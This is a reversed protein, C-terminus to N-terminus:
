IFLIRRYYVVLVIFYIFYTFFHAIVVGKLGYNSILFFSSSWLILFSFIDTFVFGKVDKNAFFQIGMIYAAAKFFDGLLQWFFLQSVPKFENTFLVTVIFDKFLFLMLLGVFFVPLINKFYEFFLNKTDLKSKVSSLKPLFYLAVLTSIFMFYYSAIRTMAEWYGAEKLGINNIINQRISLNILPSIALPVFLMLSYSSIKKLFNFDYNEFSFLKKIKISKNLYYTSTIIHLAPTLVLSLLSGFVGFKLVLYVTFFLGIISGFINIKIVKKYFDFGNIISTFLISSLIFPLSIALVLVIKEHAMQSGFIIKNFYSSFILLILGILISAFLVTFLVTSAIKKLKVTDQKDQAIYKVVGNELGLTGFGQITALFNRFNGTVAMGSPGIYLAIVKSTILGVGIKFLISISNLSTAKFLNSKLIEKVVKM